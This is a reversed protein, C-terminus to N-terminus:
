AAKAARYVTIAAEPCMTACRECGSCADSPDHLEAPRVGRANLRDGAIRMLGKPCVPICLACGKCLTEDVTVTGHM